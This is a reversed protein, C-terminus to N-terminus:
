HIANKVDWLHSTARVVCSLQEFNNYLFIIVQTLQLRMSNYETIEM